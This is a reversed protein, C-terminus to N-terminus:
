KGVYWTVYWTRGCRDQLRTKLVPEALPSLPGVLGHLLGGNGEKHPRYTTRGDTRGDTLVWKRQAMQM